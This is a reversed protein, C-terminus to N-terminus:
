RTQHDAAGWTRSPRKFRRGSIGALIGPRRCAKPFCLEDGAKAYVRPSFGVRGRIDQVAANVALFERLGFRRDLGAVRAPIETLALTDDGVGQEGILHRQLCLQDSGVFVFAVINEVDAIVVGWIDHRDGDGTIHVTVVLRVEGDQM